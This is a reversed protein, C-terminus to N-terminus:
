TLQEFSYRTLNLFQQIVVNSIMKDATAELFESEITDQLTDIEKKSLPLRHGILLNELKKSQFAFPGAFALKVEIISNRETNVIFAYSASSHSITHEPGVRRFISIDEDILSIRINTLIFGEPVKKFNQLTEVKTETTSKFELRTDLAMLPAYLTLKHGEACINGGVTAMNRIMPNAISALAEYLIHPMHNPGLNLLDSLTAGPGVDIFREHRSIQSLDKLGHTSIAKEPLEELRTCGGVIQLGKNNKMQTQLDHLNKAYLISKM